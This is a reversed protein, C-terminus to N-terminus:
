HYDHSAKIFIDLRVVVLPLALIFPALPPGEFDVIGFAEDVYGDLYPDLLMASAVKKLSNEHLTATYSEIVNNLNMTFSLAAEQHCSFLGPSYARSEKNIMKYSPDSDLSM